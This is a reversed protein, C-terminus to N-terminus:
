TDSVTRSARCMLCPSFHTFIFTILTLLAFKQCSPIRLLSFVLDSGVDLKTQKHVAGTMWLSMARDFIHQAVERPFTNNSGRPSVNSKEKENLTFDSATM